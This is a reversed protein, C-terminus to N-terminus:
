PHAQMVARQDIRARISRTAASGISEVCASAYAKLAKQAM